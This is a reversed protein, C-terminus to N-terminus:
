LLSSCQTLSSCVIFLVHCKGGASASISSRHTDCSLSVSYAPNMTNPQSYGFQRDSTIFNNFATRKHFNYHNSGTVKVMIKLHFSLISQATQNKRNPKWGCLPRAESCHVTSCQGDYYVGTVEAALREWFFCLTMKLKSNLHFSRRKSQERLLLCFNLKCEVCLIRKRLLNKTFCQM